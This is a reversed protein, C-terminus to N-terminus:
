KGIGDVWRLISDCVVIGCRCADRDCSKYRIWIGFCFNEPVRFLWFFFWRFVCVCLSVNLIFESKRSSLGAGRMVGISGEVRGRCKQEWKTTGNIEDLIASVTDFTLGRNRENSWRVSIWGEKIEMEVGGRVRKREGRRGFGSRTRMWRRKTPWRSSPLRRFFFFFCLREKRGEKRGKRWAKEEFGDRTVKELRTISAVTRAFSGVIGVIGLPARFLVYPMRSITGRAKSTAKSELRGISRWKTKRKREPEYKKDTQENTTSQANSLPVNSM